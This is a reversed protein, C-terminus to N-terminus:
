LLVQLLGYVLSVSEPKRIVFAPDIYMYGKTCYTICNVHKGPKAYEYEQNQAYMYSSHGYLYWITSGPRIVHHQQWRALHLVTKRNPGLFFALAWHGKFVSRWEESIPYLFQVVM